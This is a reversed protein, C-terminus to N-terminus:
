PRFGYYEFPLCVGPAQRSKLYDALCAINAKVQGKERESLTGLVEDAAMVSLYHRLAFDMDGDLGLSTAGNRTRIEGLMHLNATVYEALVQPSPHRIASEGFSKAAGSWDKRGKQELGAQYSLAAEREEVGAPHLRLWASVIEPKSLQMQTLVRAPMPDAHARAMLAVLMGHVLWLLRASRMRM